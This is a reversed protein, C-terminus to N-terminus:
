FNQVLTLGSSGCKGCTCKDINKLNKGMRHYYGIVGCTKCLVTYKYVATEAVTREVHTKTGDNSTGIEKCISKFYTDHGHCEGTRATAIYHAAEHAIVNWICDDTSTALFQKSFEVKENRVIGNTRIWCVRGLTRTLRGNLTIPCTVEVGANTCIEKFEKDVRALDYAM